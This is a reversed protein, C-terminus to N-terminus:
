SAHDGTDPTVPGHEATPKPKLRGFPPFGHLSQYSDQRQDPQDGGGEGAAPECFSTTTGVPATLSGIVSCGVVTTMAQM